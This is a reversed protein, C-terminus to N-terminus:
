SAFRIPPIRHLGSWDHRCAGTMDPAQMNM